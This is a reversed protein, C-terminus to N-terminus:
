ENKTEKFYSLTIKIIRGNKLPFDLSAGKFRNGDYTKDFWEVLEVITKFEGVKKM